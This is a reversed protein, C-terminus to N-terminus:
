AIWNALDEASTPEDRMTGEGTLLWHIRVGCIDCFMPIRSRHIYGRTRWKTITQPSVRMKEALGRQKLGSQEIAERIRGAFDHDVMPNCTVPEHM